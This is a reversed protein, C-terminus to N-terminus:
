EMSVHFFPAGAVREILDEEEIYNSNIAPLTISESSYIMEIDQNINNSITIQEEPSFQKYSVNNSVEVFKDGSIFIEQEGKILMPASSSSGVETVTCGSFDIKSSITNGDNTISENPMVGMTLISQLSFSSTIVYALKHNVSTSMFEIISKYREQDPFIEYKKTSNDEDLVGKKTITIQEIAYYQADTGTGVKGVYYVTETVTNEENKKLTLNTEVSYYTRKEEKTLSYKIVTNDGKGYRAYSSTVETSYKNLHVKTVTDSDSENEKYEYRGEYELVTSYTNLYTYNTFEDYKETTNLAVLANYKADNFEEIKASNDGGFCATLGFLCPVIVASCVLTKLINKKKM